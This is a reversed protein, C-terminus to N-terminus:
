EVKAIDGLLDSRRHEQIPMKQRVRYLYDLDIEATVIGVHSDGADALIEGYPGVILAHGFSSRNPTHRGVQAAAAVYCQNEIARARLLTHWHARGTTPFFASPVLLTTAGANSLAEYLSPFRLDYCTSLGLTGLPSDRTIVLRDGAKTHDAESIRGTPLTACFLHTKRYISVPSQNDDDGPRLIIHTNYVQTDSCREHLGGVSLWINHQTSLSQLHSITTNSSLPQSLSVSLETSDVIYDTCEPLCLLIAGANKAQIILTSAQTLNHELSSTVNMQAIAIVPAM